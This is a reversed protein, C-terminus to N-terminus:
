DGGGGGGGGGNGEDDDEFYTGSISSAKSYINAPVDARYLELLAEDVGAERCASLHANVGNADAEAEGSRLIQM